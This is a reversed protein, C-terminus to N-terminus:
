RSVEGLWREAASRAADVTPKGARFCLKWLAPKSELAPDVFVKRGDSRARLKAAYDIGSTMELFGRLRKAVLVNVNEPWDSGLRALEADRAKLREPYANREMDFRQKDAEALADAGAADKKMAELAKRQERAAKELQGKIEVPVSETKLGSEMEAVARELQSVREQQIEKATKAPVPKPVEPAVVLGARVQAYAARFAKSAVLKPVIAGAVSVLRARKVADDRLARLSGPLSTSEWVIASLLADRIEDASLGADRAAAEAGPVAGLDLPPPPAGPQTSGVASEPSARSAGAGPPSAPPGSASTASTADTPTKPATASSAPQCSALLTFAAHLLSLAVGLGRPGEHLPM